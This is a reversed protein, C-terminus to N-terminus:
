RNLYGSMSLSRVNSSPLNSMGRVVFTYVRQSVPFFGNFQALTTTTGSARIELTDTTLGLTGVVPIEAYQTQSRYPVGQAINGARRRSFIDIASITINPAM